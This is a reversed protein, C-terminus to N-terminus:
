EGGAFSFLADMERDEIASFLYSKRVDTRTSTAKQKNVFFELKSCLDRMKNKVQAPNVQDQYFLGVYFDKQLLKISLIYVGQDATDFSLRYETETKSPLLGMLAHSAQWIGSILVGATQGDLKTQEYVVIGDNRVVVFDLKKTTEDQAFFQSIVQNLNM